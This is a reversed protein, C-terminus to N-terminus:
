IKRINKLIYINEIEDLEEKYIKYAPYLLLFPYIYSLIGFFERNQKGFSSGIEGVLGTDGLITSVGM